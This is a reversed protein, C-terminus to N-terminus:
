EADTEETEEEAPAEEETEEVADEETSEEETADETTEETADETTEETADETPATFAAEPVVIEFTEGHGGFTMEITVIITEPMGSEAAEEETTGMFDNPNITLVASIGTPKYTTKDYSASIVPNTGLVAELTEVSYLSRIMEEDEATFEVGQEAGTAKAQEIADNILAEMDMASNLDAWLENADIDQKLTFVYDTETESFDSYKEALAIQEETLEGQQAQAENIAAYVQDSIEQEQASYDEITWEDNVGDYLYAIGELAWASLTYTESGLFPSVVEGQFEMSFRPDINFSMDFNLQGIDATQEGSQFAVSVFGNANMSELQNQGAANIQTLVDRATSQASVTPLVNIAMLLAVLLSGLLKFGKKM